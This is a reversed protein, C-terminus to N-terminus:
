YWNNSVSHEWAACPSGYRSEIYGLGWSIQTAPNTEWDSGASAMKSGPLSQPIGYASSSPNDATHDWGSEKQWLDDLCSWQGNGFGRESLMQQAIARSSGPDADTSSAAEVEDSEREQEEEAEREAEEAAEREEQEAAEREAEREAEAAAEREAEAAEEAAVRAAEEEAAVRAAEAEAAVRVAEVEAAVRAAEVEAAARAAEEAATRARGAAEAQGVEDVWAQAQASTSPLGPQLPERISRSAQDDTRRAEPDVPPQAAVEDGSGFLAGLAFRDGPTDALAPSTAVTYGGVGVVLAAATIGATTAARRLPAPRRSQPDTHRPM